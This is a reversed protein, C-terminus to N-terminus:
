NNNLLMLPAPSFNTPHAFVRVLSSSVWTGNYQGYCGGILAKGTSLRLISYKGYGPMVWGGNSLNGVTFTSDQSGDINLRAVQSSIFNYNNDVKNFFNQEIIVKGNPQGAMAVIDIFNAGGPPIINPNFTTDLTGEPSFRAISSREPSGSESTVHSFGGSVMIKSNRQVMLNVVDRDMTQIHNSTSPAFTTDLTGDSNLRGLFGGANWDAETQWSGTLLYKTGAVAVCTGNVWKDGDTLGPIVVNSVNTNFPIDTSGNSNLRGVPLNGDNFSIQGAVLMQGSSLPLVQFLTSYGGGPYVMLPFFSNDLSGDANLRALSTRASSQMQGYYGALLVKGDAQVAISDVRGSADTGGKFSTDLSGDANIRAFNQRYKGCVANFQGGILIKGDPQQVLSAVTGMSWGQAVFAHNTLAGSANLYAFGGLNNTGNYARFYGYIWGGTGDSKWVFNRIRDDAGANPIAGTYNFSTDWSGTTNLRVIYGCTTDNWKPFNGIVLVRDDYSGLTTNMLQVKTATGNPGTGVDYGTDLTFTNSTKTFRAVRNKTVWASGDYVQRFDGCVVWKTNDLNLQIASFIPGDVMESGVAVTPPHTASPAYVNHDVGLLYYRGSGDYKPYDLFIRVDDANSPNLSFGSIFGGPANWQTFGTDVKGDYNLRALSCATEDNTGVSMSYGGVLIKATSGSGQVALSTVGGGWIDPAFSSDVSGDANLRAINNIYGTETQIGFAGFILIKDPYNADDHPYIYAGYIEGWMPSPTSESWTPGKWSTDIAGSSTIRLICTYNNPSGSDKQMWFFRGFMLSYGPYLTNGPYPQQGRIVPIYQVGQYPASGMSFTPDLDGDAAYAPILFVMAICFALMPVSLRRLCRALCFLPKLSSQEVPGVDLLQYPKM